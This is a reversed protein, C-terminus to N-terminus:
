LGEGLQWGIRILSELEEETNATLVKKSGDKRTYYVKCPVKM